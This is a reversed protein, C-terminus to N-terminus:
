VAQVRASQVREIAELLATIEYPKEIVPQQVEALFARGAETFAGGTMFVFRAALAPDRERTTRYLDMGSLEPMMLDCVIAAFSERAALHTLAARPDSLGVVTHTSKLSRTIASVVAPEDDVVLVSRRAHRRTEPAPTSPAVREAVYEPLRIRALTGRGSESELELTGGLGQVISHCVYLGLGTGVGRPKTTFFPDFVRRLNEPSIGTGNDEVELAAGGEIRLTRVIIRNGEKRSEPMAQAANVLLNVVVQVLRGENGRVAPVEALSEVASGHHKIENAAMKLSKRAVAALDVPVIEDPDVRASAKLDVVIRRVRDAGELADAMAARVDAVNMAAISAPDRLADAAYQVNASIYTLPNNIEHAVSAALRGISALRESEVLQSQIRHRRKMERTLLIGGAVLLALIAAVMLDVARRRAFAERLSYQLEVRGVVRGELDRMPETVHLVNDLIGSRPAADGEPPHSALLRGEPDRIRVSLLAPDALVGRYSENIAADDGFVVGTTAAAGILRAYGDAREAWEALDSRREALRLHIFLVAACLLTAYAVLVRDFPRFPM